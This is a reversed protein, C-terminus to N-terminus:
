WGGSPALLHQRHVLFHVLCLIQQHQPGPRGLRWFQSFYIEITELSSRTFIQSIKVRATPLTQSRLNMSSPFQISFLRLEGENSQMRTLSSPPSCYYGTRCIPHGTASYACHSWPTELIFCIVSQARECHGYENLNKALVSGAQLFCRQTPSVRSRNTGLLSQCQSHM